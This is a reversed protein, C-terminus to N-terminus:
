GGPEEIEAGGRSGSVHRSKKSRGSHPGCDPCVEGPELARGCGSCYERQAARRRLFAVSVGLTVASAAVFVAVAAFLWPPVGLIGGRGGEDAEGPATTPPLATPVRTPTPEETPPVTPTPPLPLPGLDAEDSAQRDDMEVSVGVRHTDGDPPLGSEYTVIYQQKLQDPVNLFLPTLRGSDPAEQYTGGTTRAVRGLYGADIEGGLGITFVPVNALTAEQIPTEANAVASGPDEDVGDTLLIVARHGLSGQQAWQVGKYLADYLPTGGDAALGDILATVVGRDTTPPHERAPNLGDLDVADAFAIFAVEDEEGLQEVLARAAAQADALPQGAMSGSIDVVLVLGVPLDRNMMPRVGVIPRADPAGDENVELAAVDLGPVPVGNADRVTLTLAVQPFVSVDAEVVRVSLEPPPQQAQAPVPISAALMLMVILALKRKTKV